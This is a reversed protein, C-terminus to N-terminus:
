LNIESHCHFWIFLIKQETVVNVDMARGQVKFIDRIQAHYQLVM